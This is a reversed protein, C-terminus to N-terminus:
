AALDHQNRHALNIPSPPPIVRDLTGDPRSLRLTRDADMTLTWGDDHILHHWRRSIPVLESLVTRKSEEWFVVHHIEISEWGVGSIPCTPYLARLAVKQAESPSRSARSVNVQSDASTDIRRMTADCCLRGLAATGIPLGEFTEAISNPHSGSTMTDRDCLVNLRVSARPVGSRETSDGRLILDHLAQATIQAGTMGLCLNPDDALHRAERILAAKIAAGRLPDFSGTVKYADREITPTIRAFSDAKVQEAATTGGDARVKDRLRRVRKRFSEEGLKAAAKTLAPGHQQIATTEEDSLSSTLRALVDINASPIAGARYADGTDPFREVVRSREIEARVQHRPITGGGALATDIPPGENSALSAHAIEAVVADIKRQIERAAALLPEVASATTAPQSRLEDALPTLQRSLQRLTELADLQRLDNATQM